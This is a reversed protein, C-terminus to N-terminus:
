TSRPMQPGSRPSWPRNASYQPKNLVGVANMHFNAAPNDEGEKWLGGFATKKWGKLTKGDFISVYTGEKQAPLNDAQSSTVGLLVAGAFVALLMGRQWQM